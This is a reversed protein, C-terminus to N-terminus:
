EVKRHELKEASGTIIITQQVVTSHAVLAMDAIRSSYADRANIWFFSVPCPLCLIKRGRSKAAKVLDIGAISVFEFQIANQYPIEVRAHLWCPARAEHKGALTSTVELLSAALRRWGVMSVM